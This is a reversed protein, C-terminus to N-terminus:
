SFLGASISDAKLMKLYAIREVTLPHTAFLASLKKDQLPNVVFLHVSAPHTEATQLVHQSQATDIKELAAAMWLPNGCWKAALLDADLERTRTLCTQVFMASIPGFVPLLFSILQSQPKKKRLGFFSAWASKDATAFISGAIAAVVGGLFTDRNAIHAMEYAIIATLEDESLMNLLGTTIVITAKKPNRGVAFANPNNNEVLYIAPIPLSAKEALANVIAHLKPYSLADAPKADFQRLVIRDSYFYGNVDMILAIVGAVFIGSDGAIIDGVALLLATLGALVLFVKINNM